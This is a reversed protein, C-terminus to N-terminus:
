GAPENGLKAYKQWSQWASDLDARVATKPLNLFLKGEPEPQASLAPSNPQGTFSGTASGPPSSSPGSSVEATSSAYLDM